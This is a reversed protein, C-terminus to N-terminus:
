PKTLQMGFLQFFQKHWEKQHETWETTTAYKGLALVASILLKHSISALLKLPMPFTTGQVSRGRLTAMASRVGYILHWGGAMGLVIYYLKFLSAIVHAVVLLSLTYGAIRHGKLEYEGHDTTQTHKNKSHINNRDDNKNKHHLKAIKSRSQFTHYNAYFHSIMAVYFLVEFFPNQYVRRLTMMISDAREYSSNLFFHSVLHITVFITMFLGSAAQIKKPSAASTTM